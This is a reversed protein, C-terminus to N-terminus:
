FLDSAPELSVWLTPVVRDGEEEDFGDITVAGSRYVRGHRAALGPKSGKETGEIPRTIAGLFVQVVDAAISPNETGCFLGPVSM